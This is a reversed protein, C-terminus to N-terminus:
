LRILRAVVNITRSELGCPKRCRKVLGKLIFLLMCCVSFPYFFVLFSGSGVFGCRVVECCLSRFRVLLWMQPMALLSSNTFLGCVFMVLVTICDYLRLEFAAFGFSSTFFNGKM